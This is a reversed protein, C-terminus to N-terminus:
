FDHWSQGGGAGKSRCVRCVRAARVLLEGKAGLACPGCPGLNRPDFDVHFGLLAPRYALNAEKVIM